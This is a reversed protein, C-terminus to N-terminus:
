RARATARAVRRGDVSLTVTVRDGPALLPANTSALRLRAAEGARWRPDSAPNFPGTPGAHFGRAAFFPVSPQHRLPRGDVRVRVDLRRADLTDGGRHVLRLGDTAADARLAVAVTPAPDPLLGAAVGVAALCVVAAVAVDVPRVAPIAAGEGM